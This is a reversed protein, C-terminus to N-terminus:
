NLSRLYLDTKEHQTLPHFDKATRSGAMNLYRELAGGVKQVASSQAEVQFSVFLMLLFSKAARMQM